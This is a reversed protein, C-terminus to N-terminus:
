QLVGTPQRSRQRRAVDRVIFRNGRLALDDLAQRPTLQGSMAAQIASRIMNRLPINFGQIADKIGYKSVRLVYQHFPDDSWIDIASHRTPLTSVAYAVQRERETDTMYGVFEMVLRRKRPDSQVFVCPSDAVVFIHPTVGPKSPYMMPYLDIVGPQITGTRVALEHAILSGNHGMRMAVRGLNWLDTVDTRRLGASGPPVVHYKHELDVMFQLAEVGAETNITLSDGDPNFMFAGHGWFFPMQQQEPADRQIPMAFGYVDVAGDGDRDFTTSRAAELFQDFSWLRDGGVPLLHEVGRERFINRNAILYCNGGIFPLFYHKGEYESFEYYPGFDEVDEPDIFDDFSELLGFPAYKLPIGSTSIMIDPPLGSAVAIDLKQYGTQWDLVEIDFQIDVGPHLDNFDRGTKVYWDSYTYEARRPDDLPVGDLEHGTVGLWTAQTWLSIRVSDDGSDVSDGCGFVAALAIQVVHLLRRSDQPPFIM